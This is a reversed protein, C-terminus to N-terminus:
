MLGEIAFSRFKGVRDRTALLGKADNKWANFQAASDFRYITFGKPEAGGMTDVVKGRRIIYKGGYKTIIEQMSDAYTKFGAPDTIELDNIVYIPASAQAHLGQMALAGLGFTAAALAIVHRTKMAEEQNGGAIGWSKNFYAFCANRNIMSHPTLKRNL